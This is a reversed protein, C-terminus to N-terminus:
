RLPRDVADRRGAPAAAPRRTVALPALGAGVLVASVPLLDLSVAISGFGLLVLVPSWIPLRHAVVFRVLVALMGLQFLMPGAAELWAPLPAADRFGDSLDGAIVWLFCGAGVLVAVTAVDMVLRPTPLERRLLVVLAAFLVIAIFFAVHGIDWALGNGRDGDWGDVMRCLGYFLMLTPAAIASFRTM